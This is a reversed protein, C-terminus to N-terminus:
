PADRRSDRGGERRRRKISVRVRWYKAAYMVRAEGLALEVAAPSPFVHNLIQSITGVYAGAVPNVQCVLADM